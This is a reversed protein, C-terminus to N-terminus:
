SQEGVDGASDAELPLRVNVTTGGGPASGLCISGGHARVIGQCVSLGLGLASMDGGGLVGKTTFFPDFVHDLVDTPIGQGTDTIRVLAHDDDQSLQITLRGGPEPMAEASNALIHLFVKEIRPADIKVPKVRKFDRILAIGASRFTPTMVILADDLLRVLETPRRELRDQGAFSLLRSTTLGAREVKQIILRLARKVEPESSVELADEACVLIGGLLNNFEHAVGAALTAVEPSQNARDRDRNSGAEASVDDDTM